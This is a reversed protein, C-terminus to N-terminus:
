DRVALRNTFGIPSREMYSFIPDGKSDVLGTDVPSNDLDYVTLSPLLPDDDYMDKSTIKTNLRTIVKYKRM